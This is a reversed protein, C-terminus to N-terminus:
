SACYEELMAVPRDILVALRRATQTWDDVECTVGVAGAASLEHAAEASDGAHSAILASHVHVLHRLLPPLQVVDGGVGCLGREMSQRARVVGSGKPRRKVAVLEGLAATMGATVTTLPDEHEHARRLGEEAFQLGEPNRGPQVLVALRARDVLARTEGARDGISAFAETARALYRSSRKVLGSAQEDVSNLSRNHLARGLASLGDAQLEGYGACMSQAQVLLGLGRDGLPELPLPAGNLQDGLAVQSRCIVEWAVGLVGPGRQRCVDLGARWALRDNLAVVQQAKAQCCWREAAELFGKENELDSRPSGERLYGRELLAQPLALLKGALLEGGLFRRISSASANIGLALVWQRMVQETMGAEHQVVQLALRVAMDSVRGPVEVILRGGVDIVRPSFAADM